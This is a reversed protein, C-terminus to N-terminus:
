VDIPKRKNALREMVEAAKEMAELDEDSAQSMDIVSAKADKDLTQAIEIVQPAKGYGRNLLQECAWQKAALTAGEPVEGRLVSFMFAILEDGGSSEAQIKKALGKFGIAKGSPNGSQGKLWGGKADRKVLADGM